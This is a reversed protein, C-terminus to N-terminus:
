IEDHLNPRYLHTIMTKIRLAIGGGCGVWVKYFDLCFTM